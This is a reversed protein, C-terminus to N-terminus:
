IIIRISHLQTIKNGLAKKKIHSIGLLIRLNTNFLVRIDFSKRYLGVTDEFHYPYVFDM